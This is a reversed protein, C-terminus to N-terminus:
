KSVPILIVNDHSPLESKHKVEILKSKREKGGKLKFVQYNSLSLAYDILNSVDDNEASREDILELILVPSYNRIIKEAGKLVELEFGEVDIKVVKPILKDPFLADLTDIIVKFGDERKVNDVLSAGGRNLESQFRIVGEGKQGGLACDFVRINKFKNLSINYNLLESTEPHAEFSLVTGNEGVCQSAFLSMLGINAGVDVFCDGKKLFDKLFFLIGKEYTGTEHLSLEVGNDNAPDIKLLFGHLTKLVYPSLNNHNPLLIRPLLISLKRIGKVDRDRFFSIISHRFFYSRFGAM